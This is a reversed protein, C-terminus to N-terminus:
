AFRNRPETPGEDMQRLALALELASLMEARSRGEKGFVNVKLLLFCLHELLLLHRTLLDKGSSRM